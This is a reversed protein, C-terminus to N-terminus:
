GPRALSQSNLPWPWHLSWCPGLHFSVQQGKATAYRKGKPFMFITEPLSSLQWLSWTAEAVQGLAALTLVLGMVGLIKDGTKNRLWWIVQPLDSTKWSRWKRMQGIPTHWWIGFDMGGTVNKIFFKLCPFYLFWYVGLYGGGVNAMPM